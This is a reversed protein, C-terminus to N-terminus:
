LLGKRIRLLFDAADAHAKEMMRPDNGHEIGTEHLVLEVAVKPTYGRKILMRTRETFASSTDRKPEQAAASLDSTAECKHERFKVAGLRDYADKAEGGSLLTPVPFRWACNSCAWGNADGETWILFRVMDAVGVTSDLVPATVNTERHISSAAKAAGGCDPKAHNQKRNGSM